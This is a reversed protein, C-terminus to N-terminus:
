FNVCKNVNCAFIDVNSASICHSCSFTNPFCESLASRRWPSDTGSESDLNLRSGFNLQFKRTKLICMNAQNISQTLSLTGGFVSYTM